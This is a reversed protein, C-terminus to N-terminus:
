LGPSKANNDATWFEYTVNWVSIDENNNEQKDETYGSYTTTKKDKDVINQGLVTTQGVSIGETSEPLFLIIACM